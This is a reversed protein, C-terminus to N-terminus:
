PLRQYARFSPKHEGEYTMLGMTLGGPTGAPEDRLNFWGYGAAGVRRAIQFGNRLWRAQERRSVAFGFARNPRDSSVSYESIWLAPRRGSPRYARRIERAFTDMDSIDRAGPYGPYGRLTIDPARASYPNHGYEDLRPPRGDPLRMWRVWDRPQVDGFSLSMGGVVINRSSRRKLAGYATDLLRAYARPGRPSNARNPEFRMVSNAEGWIMWRRVSPYRRSAATLFRAYAREAGPVWLPDRGGNAWSPAGRVLLAVEMGARRAGRVAEDVDEPWQYAPDDPDKPHAPRTRAIRNWVLQMELVDVGLQRYVPFASSGGQLVHPGWIAKLPLRAAATSPAAAAAGAIVLLCLLARTSRPV